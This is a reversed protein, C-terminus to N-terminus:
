HTSDIPLRNKAREKWDPGCEDDSCNHNKCFAGWIRIPQGIPYDTVNFRPVMGAYCYETLHLDGFVDRYKIVGLAGIPLKRDQIPTMNPPGIMFIASALESRPGIVGKSFPLQYPNRREFAAATVQENFVLDVSFELDRTPTNGSNEIIPSVAWRPTEEPTIGKAGYNVIQM